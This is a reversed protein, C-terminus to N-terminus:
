NFLDLSKASKDPKFRIIMIRRTKIEKALMQAVKKEKKKLVKLYDAQGNLSKVYIDCVGLDGSIEIATVTLFGVEEPSVLQMLIPSLKLEVVSAMKKSRESMKM